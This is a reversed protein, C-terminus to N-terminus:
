FNGVTNCIVISFAWQLVSAGGGLFFFFLSITKSIYFGSPYPWCAPKIDNCAHM